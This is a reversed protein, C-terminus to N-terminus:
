AHAVAYAGRFARFKVVVAFTAGAATGTGVTRFRLTSEGSIPLTYAKRIGSATDSDEWFLSAWLGEEFDHWLVAATDDTFQALVRVDTPAGTSDIFIHVAAGTCGSVDYAASNANTPVADLTVDIATTWEDDPSIVAVTRAVKNLDPLHDNPRAM